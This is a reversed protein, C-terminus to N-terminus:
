FLLVVEVLQLVVILVDKVGEDVLVDDFNVVVDQFSNNKNKSNIIKLYIIYMNKKQLPEDRM